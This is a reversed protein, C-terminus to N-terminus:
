GVVQAPYLFGIRGVVRAGPDADRIAAIVQQRDPCLAIFISHAL